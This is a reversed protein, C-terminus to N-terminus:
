VPTVVSHIGLMSYSPVNQRTMVNSSPGDIISDVGVRVQTTMPNTTTPVNKRVTPVIPRNLSGFTYLRICAVLLGAVIPVTAIKRAPNTYKPGPTGAERREDTDDEQEQRHRGARV